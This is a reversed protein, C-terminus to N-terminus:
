YETYTTYRPSEDQQNRLPIERDTLFITLRALVKLFATLM